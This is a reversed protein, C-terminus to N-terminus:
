LKITEKFTITQSTESCYGTSFIRDIVAGIGNLWWEKYGIIPPRSASQMTSNNKITITVVAIDGNVEAEWSVRYSGLFTVTEGGVRPVDWMSDARAFVQMLSTILLIYLPTRRKM